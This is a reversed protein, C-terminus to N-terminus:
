SWSWFMGLGLGQPPALGLGLDLGFWHSSVLKLIYETGTNMIIM